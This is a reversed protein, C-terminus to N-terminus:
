VIKQVLPVIASSPVTVSLGQDRRERAGKKGPLEKRERPGKELPGKEKGTGNKPVPFKEKKREKKLYQKNRM